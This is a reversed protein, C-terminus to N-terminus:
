RRGRATPRLMTSLSSKTRSPIIRPPPMTGNASIATSDIPVRNASTATAESNLSVAATNDVALQDMAHVIREVLEAVMKEGRYVPSVISIHCPTHESM